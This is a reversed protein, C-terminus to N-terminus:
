RLTSSEHREVATALVNAVAQLFNVDNESFIRFSNSHVGLVGFPGDEGAIPATMGSIVGHELMLRSPEFRTEVRLDEVVVPGESRLTYGAHTDFDTGETAAGVAEEEWGVGARLLLEEGGPLVEVIKCYGVELTRSVALVAEDMLTQVNASALARLGLEAVVAQQRSRTETEEQALKRETVNEHAVIVHPPDGDPFRTVREVFWRREDPSHCPYELEFSDLNGSIIARIAEAVRPAEGASPGSVSDCVDLYNAGETLNALDVTSNAAAFERWARNTAVITGTDDLVAVHASLGDLASRAFLGAERAEGDRVVALVVHGHPEAEVGSELRSLTLEVRIEEGGKALVPLKLATGSDVHPDLGTERYCALRGQYRRRLRAPVLEEVNSGLAEEPPYGFLESAAKSWLLIRGTAVEIVVAAESVSRLLLGIGSGHFDPNKRDDPGM